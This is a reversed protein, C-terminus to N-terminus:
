VLCSTDGKRTPATSGIARGMVEARGATFIEEASTEPLPAFGGLKPVSIRDKRKDAGKAGKRRQTFFEEIGKGAATERLFAYANLGLIVATGIM